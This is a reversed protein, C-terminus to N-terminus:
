KGRGGAARPAAASRGGGSTIAPRPSSRVGTGRQVSGSQPKMSARASGARGGIQTKSPNTQRGAPTVTRTAVASTNKSRGAFARAARPNHRLAASTRTPRTGQTPTGGLKRVTRTSSRIAKGNTKAGSGSRLGQTKAATDRRPATMKSISRPSKVGTRAVAVGKGRDASTTKGRFRLATDNKPASRLDDKGRYRYAGEPRVTPRYAVPYGYYGNGCYGRYYPSVYPYCYGWQYPYYAPYYCDRYGWGWGFGWGVGLYFSFSSGYPYGYPYAGTYAGYGYYNSVYVDTDGDSSTRNGPNGEAEAVDDSRAFAAKLPYSLHDEHDFASTAAYGDNGAYPDKGERECESCLYRPYDVADNIYFYTFAISEDRRYAIGKVLRGAIRNAALFPDGDVRYRQGQTRTEDQLLDSIGDGDVADRDGVAVAFVFEIGTKGTVVLDQPGEQPIDYWRGATLKQFSSDRPHLLHVFGDADVDFVLVFADTDSYVSLHISEGAQYVSGAPDALAISVGNKNYENAQYPTVSYAPHPLALTSVAGLWLLKKM